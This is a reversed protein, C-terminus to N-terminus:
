YPLLSSLITFISWNILLWINLISKPFYASPMSCLKSSSSLQSLSSSYLITSLLGIVLLNTLETSFFLSLWPGFQALKIAPIISPISEALLMFQLHLAWKTGSSSSSCASPYPSTYLSSSIEPFFFSLVNVVRYTILNSLSTAALSLFASSHNYYLLIKMM